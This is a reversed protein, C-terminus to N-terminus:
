AVERMMQVTRERHSPTRRAHSRVRHCNCFVLDCKAIEALVRERKHNAMKGVAWRKAGRVHDYEMVYPPFLVGCDLCPQGEKLDDVFAQHAEGKDQYYTLMKGRNAEAWAQRAPEYQDKRRSCERCYAALGDKRRKNKGYESAAKTERCSPCVKGM